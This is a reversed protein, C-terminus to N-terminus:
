PAAPVPSLMFADTQTLSVLLDIVNGNAPNFGKNLQGLVCADAQTESVGYAYLLWHKSYCGHVQASTAVKESLQDVGTFAGPNDFGPAIEGSADVPFGNEMDQWLGVGDYNSFGFGLPDLVAHCGSCTPDARHQAFAERVSVGEKIEVPMVNLGEPPPPVTVCLIQHDMFAGRVVPNTNSGPTTMALVSAHTLVGGRQVPDVNVKQFENGTVGAIGYFKALPENLFTYPATYFEGMTGKQDFVIHSLFSQTEKLFLEGLGPAFTPFATANRQLKPAGSIKFLEGHFYEVVRRAKPDAVMRKAHELVQERSVLKGAAAADTLTQDPMTGWLLYSLRTALEYPDLVAYNAGAVPDPMELRYLFQPLQVVAEVVGRVGGSFGANTQGITFVETLLQVQEASLPRRFARQGFNKIFTDPCAADAAACGAFTAAATDDLAVQKALSRAIFRYREVLLPSAKQQVADNYFGNGPAEGPLSSVDVSATPFLDTLTNALEFRNLRRLPAGVGQSECLATPPPTVVDPGAGGNGNPLPAGGGVGPPDISPMPNPGDGESACAASGIFALAAAVVVPRLTRKPRNTNKHRM